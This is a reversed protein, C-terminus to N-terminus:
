KEYYIIKHDPNQKMLKNLKNIENLKQKRLKKQKYHEIIKLM